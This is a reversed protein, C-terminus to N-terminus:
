PVVPTLAANEVIRGQTKGDISVAWIESTKYRIGEDDPIRLEFFM